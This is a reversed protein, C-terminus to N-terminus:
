DYDEGQVLVKTRRVKSTAKIAPRKKVRVDSNRRIEKEQESMEVVDEITRSSEERSIIKEEKEILGAEQEKIITRTILAYALAVVGLAVLTYNKFNTPIGLFPIILNLIGVVFVFKYVKM